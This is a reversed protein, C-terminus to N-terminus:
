ILAQGRLAMYLIMATLSFYVCGFVIVAARSKLFFFASLPMVQLAHMGLFHSIRLDGFSKSWNLFWYGESGDPAGVTHSMKSGMVFGEFSFIVFIILGIRIGWLYHTPLNPFDKTFFLVGVYATWFTVLAAAIAMLVYLYGYYSTMNYHSAQGRIAQIAIYIIELGLLGAIGWSFMKKHFAPPLYFVLWAMTWSYIGISLGFKVPKYFAHTGLFEVHVFFSAVFLVVAVLFNLSGFDFLVENRERLNRFFQTIRGLGNM